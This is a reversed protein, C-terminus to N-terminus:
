VYIFFLLYWISLPYDFFIFRDHYSCTVALGPILAMVPDFFTPRVGAQFIFTSFHALIQGLFQILTLGGRASRMNSLATGFANRRLTRETDNSLATHKTLQCEATM